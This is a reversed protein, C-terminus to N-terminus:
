FLVTSFELQFSGRFSMQDLWVGFGPAVRTHKTTLSKLLDASSNCFFKCTFSPMFQELEFKAEGSLCKLLVIQWKKRLLEEEHLSNNWKVKLRVM